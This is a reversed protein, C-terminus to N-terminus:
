NNMSNNIHDTGRTSSATFYGCVRSFHNERITEKKKCMGKFQTTNSLVSVAEYEDTIKDVIKFYPMESMM